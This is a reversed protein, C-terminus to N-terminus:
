ISSQAQPSCSIHTQRNQYFGPQTAMLHFWRDVDEKLAFVVSGKNPNLRRVPFHYANEWRQLTKACTGVYQAIDKWSRLVTGGLTVNGTPQLLVNPPLEVVVAGVQTVKGTSDVIPFLNNIWRGGAPKTPLAGVVECNLVPRGTAFVREIGPEVQLAVDGLIERLHRGLHAEVSTGNSAALFPNLAQYHLQQDFIALGVNTSILDAFLREADLWGSLSRRPM